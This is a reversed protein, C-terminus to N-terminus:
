GRLQGATTAPEFGADTLRGNQHSLATVIKTLLADRQIPKTIYDSMGAKICAERDGPMARASVGIIPLASFYSNVVGGASALARIAATADLGNMVPMSLDMLVLDYPRQRVAQVADAGDSVCEVEIGQKQMWRELLKQNIRNDDVVLVSAGLLRRALEDEFPMTEMFPSTDAAIKCHVTATFVCGGGDRASVTEEGGMAQCLQRSLHLGLGTGGFQRGVSPEAQAFADFVANLRDPPIGTGTDEVRMSLECDDEQGLGQTCKVLVMVQGTATFMLANDVLKNLVQCIRHPDGVLIRQSTQWRVSFVLGKEKARAEFLHLAGGLQEQVDFAIQEFMLKGAEVKSLDLLDDLLVRLLKFSMRACKLLERQEPALASRELLDLTGAMGNLPARIEHSVAALAHHRGLGSPRRAAKAEPPMPKPGPDADRVRLHLCLLKSGQWDLPAFSMKVPRYRGDTQVIAPWASLRQADWMWQADAQSFLAELEARCAPPAFYRLDIAASSGAQRGLIRDAAPNLLLVKGRADSVILGEPLLNSLTRLLGEQQLRLAPRASGATLRHCFSRLAALVRAGWRSDKPLATRSAPDRVRKNM